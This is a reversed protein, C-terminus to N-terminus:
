WISRPLSVYQNKQKKNKSFLHQHFQRRSKWGGKGTAVEETVSASLLCFSLLNWAQKERKKIQIGREDAYHAIVSVIQLATIQMSEHKFEAMSASATNIILRYKSLRLFHRRRRWPWYLVAASTVPATNVSTLYVRMLTLHGPNPTFPSSEPSTNFKMTGLVFPRTTFERKKIGPFRIQHWFAAFTTFASVTDRPLEM